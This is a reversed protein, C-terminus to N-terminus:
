QRRILRLRLLDDRFYSFAKVIPRNDNDYGVEEFAILPTGPAIALADALVVDAVQPVIDSVYYALPTRCQEALFAFVPTLLADDPFADPLLHSPIHNQTLIAPIDNQAFLKRVSLVPAGPDLDLDTEIEASVGGEVVDLIRTSPTYGHAQLMAEYSWIEDLRTKVRLGPENVFTGAGQRRVVVGENELRTLADRITTRSVGLEAALETESPIRGGAFQDALIREKIVSKAQETLSPTRKLM